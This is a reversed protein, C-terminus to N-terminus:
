LEKLRYSFAEALHEASVLEANELDAITRATKLIRHYSRPSLVNKISDDLLTKAERTLTILRHVERVNMDANTKVSSESSRGSNSFRKRQIKKAMCIKEKWEGSESIEPMETKETKGMWEGMEVRGVKVQLDIRDLLPGSIKKQYRIVEYASCTCERSPDGYYGCPCPNMAAILTFRAPFLIGRRMRTVRLEGAELPQRLAELSSRQFEPLEDLFLIGRHALSIEGPRPDAGGGVLAIPSITHHPARFPAAQVLDNDSLGAASWIKTVEIAEEQELPPLIGTMARALMSKGVGPPGVLLINHRGAAAVTLARKANEQGRIESFDIANVSGSKRKEHLAANMVKKKELIAIMEGITEVPIVRIGRIAAAENANEKPLFITSFKERAAREAINLAGNIPRLRGDLALEGLFLKENTEFQTIQKTALLYSLAIGLDYQSGTKRMDAPALNITIKRNERNPPKVGANKLASNVREKAENLSRDALGVINFAHLGVNVDAEIEVVRADVGELEGSYVRAIKKNMRVNFWM